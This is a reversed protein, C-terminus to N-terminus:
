QAPMIRPKKLYGGIKKRTENGGLFSIKVEGAIASDGLKPALSSRGDLQFQLGKNDDLTHIDAFMAGDQMSVTGNVSGAQLMGFDKLALETSALDFTLQLTNEKSPWYFSALHGKLEGSLTGTAGEVYSKLVTKSLLEKTPAIIVDNFQLDVAMEQSIFSQAVEGTIVGGSVNTEIDAVIKGTFLSAYHPEVKVKPLVVGGKKATVNHLYLEGFSGSMHSYDFALSQSKLLSDLLAIKPAYVVMFFVFSACFVQIYLKRFKM